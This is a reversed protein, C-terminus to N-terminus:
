RQSSSMVFSGITVGWIQPKNRARYIVTRWETFDWGGGIKMFISQVNRWDRWYFEPVTGWLLIYDRGNWILMWLWEATRLWYIVAIATIDNLLSRILRCKMVTKHVCKQLNLLLHLVVNNSEFRESMAVAIPIISNIFILAFVHFSFSHSCPAASKLEHHLFFCVSISFFHMIYLLHACIKWFDLLWRSIGLITVHRFNVYQLGLVILVLGIFSLRWPSRVGTPKHV